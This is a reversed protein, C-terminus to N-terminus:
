WTMTAPLYQRGFKPADAWVGGLAQRREAISERVMAHVPAEAALNIRYSAYFTKKTEVTISQAADRPRENKEFELPNVSYTTIPRHLDRLLAQPACESMAEEIASDVFTQRTIERVSFLSEASM